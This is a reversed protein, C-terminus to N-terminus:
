SLACSAGRDGPAASCCAAVAGGGGRASGLKAAVLCRALWQAHWQAESLAPCGGRRALRRREGEADAVVACGPGAQRCLARYARAVSKDETLLGFTVFSAAHEGCRARLAPALRARWSASSGPPADTPEGDVLALVLADGGAAAGGAAARAAALEALVRELAAVLPTPGAAPPRLRFLADLEAASSVAHVVTSPENLFKLEFGYPHELARLLEGLAALAARAREWRTRPAALARADAARNM